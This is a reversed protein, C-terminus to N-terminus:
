TCCIESKIFSMIVSSFHKNNNLDDADLTSAPGCPRVLNFVNTVEIKGRSVIIQVTTMTEASLPVFQPM